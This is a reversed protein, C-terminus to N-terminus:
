KDMAIKVMGDFMKIKKELISVLRKTNVCVAEFALTHGPAASCLFNFSAVSIHLVPNPPPPM